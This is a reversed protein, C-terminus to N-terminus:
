RSTRLSALVAAFRDPEGTRDEAQQSLSLVPAAPQSAMRARALVQPVPQAAPQRTPSQPDASPAPGTLRAELYRTLRPAAVLREAKPPVLDTLAVALAEIRDPRNLYAWEAELVRIREREAVIAREIRREEAAIARVEAAATYVQAAGAAALGIGAAVVIRIM